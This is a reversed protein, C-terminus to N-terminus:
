IRCGGGWANWIDVVIKDAPIKLERYERHPTALIIVDSENLLRATPVFEPEDLYVDSCLV